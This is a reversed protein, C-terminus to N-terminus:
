NLPKIGIENLWLSLWYDIDKRRETFSIGHPIEKKSVYSIYTDAWQGDHLSTYADYVIAAEQNIRTDIITFIKFKLIMSRHYGRKMLKNILMLRILNKFDLVDNEKSDEM